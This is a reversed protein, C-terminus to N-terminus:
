KMLDNLYEITLSIAVGLLFGFVAFLFVKRFGLSPVPNDSVYIPTLLSINGISLPAYARTVAERQSFEQYRAKTLEYERNLKNMKNQKDILESQLSELENNIKATEKELIGKRVQYNALSITTNILREKLNEYLPNLTESELKLTLLDSMAKKSMKSAVQQLAVEDSLSRVLKYTRDENNFHKSIEKLSEEESKIDNILKTYEMEYQSRLSLKDTVRQNLVALNATKQYESSKREIDSLEKEFSDKQSLIYDESRTLEGKRLQTNTEFLNNTIGEMIKKVYVRDESAYNLKLIRPDKDKEIKIQNAVSEAERTNSSINQSQLVRLIFGPDKVLSEYFSAPIGIKQVDGNQSVIATEIASLVVSGQYVKPSAIIKFLPIATLFLTVLAVLYKYKVIVRIIKKPDLEIDQNQM